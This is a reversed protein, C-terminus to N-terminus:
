ATGVGCGFHHVLGGRELRQPQRKVVRQPDDIGAAGGAQGLGDHMAVAAGDDHRQRELGQVVVDAAAVCGLLKPSRKWQYLEVPQTIHFACILPRSLPVVQQM